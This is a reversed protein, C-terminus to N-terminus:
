SWDHSWRSVELAILSSAIIAFLVNFGLLVLFVTGGTRKGPVAIDGLSVSYYKVFLSVAMLFIILAGEINLCM